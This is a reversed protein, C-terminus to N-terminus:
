TFIPQVLDFDFALHRTRTFGTRTVVPSASLQNQYEFPSRRGMEVRGADKEERVASTDDNLNVGLQDQVITIGSAVVTKSSSQWRATFKALM